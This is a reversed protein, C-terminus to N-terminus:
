CVQDLRLVAQRSGWGAINTHLRPHVSNMLGFSQAPLCEADFCAQPDLALCSDAALMSGLKGAAVDTLYQRLKWLTMHVLTSANTVGSASIAALCQQLTQVRLCVLTLM